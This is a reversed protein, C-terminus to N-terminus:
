ALIGTNTLQKTGHYKKTGTKDVYSNVSKINSKKTKEEYEKRSLKGRWFNAIAPSPSWLLTRKPTESSYKFMWFAVKFVQVRLLLSSVLQGVFTLM